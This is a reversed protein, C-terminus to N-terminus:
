SRSWKLWVVQYPELVLRWPDSDPKFETGAVGTRALPVSLEGIIKVFDKM